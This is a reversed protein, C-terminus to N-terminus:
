ELLDCLVGCAHVEEYNLEPHAHIDLSVDILVGAPDYDGVYFIVVQRGDHTANINEAAEYALTISAFGGAPYLSVALERCDTEIVGAFKRVDSDRFVAADVRSIRHIDNSGRHAAREDRPGLRHPLGANGV